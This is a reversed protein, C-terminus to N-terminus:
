ELPNQQLVSIEEETYGLESWDLVGNDTRCNERCEAIHIFEHDYQAELQKALDEFQASTVPEVPFSIAIPRSDSPLFLNIVHSWQWYVLGAIFILVLSLIRIM